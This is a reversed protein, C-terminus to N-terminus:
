WRSDERSAYCGSTWGILAGIILCAVMLLEARSM